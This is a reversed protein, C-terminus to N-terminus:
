NNWIKKEKRAIKKSKANKIDGKDGSHIGIKLIQNNDWVECYAHGIM